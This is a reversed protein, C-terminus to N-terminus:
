ISLGPAGSGADLGQTPPPVLTGQWFECLCRVMKILDEFKAPKQLYCNAGAKFARRVDRDEASASLVIRPFVSCLSDEQMRELLEFGNCRPMKLDTIVMNPFPFKSRDNFAKEGRLYETAENGDGCIHIRVELGAKKFARQLLIAEDPNDEAVLIVGAKLDCFM